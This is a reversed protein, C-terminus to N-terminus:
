WPWSTGVANAAKDGLPQEPLDASLRIADDVLADVLVARTQEDNWAIRPKGPDAYDHATCCVAAVQASGPVERLVRRIAAILQTVTDQTAVADDLVTSDLARWQRGRLAGTVAVVERVAEFIRDPRSSRSLRRRFYTLLSPDFATDLL